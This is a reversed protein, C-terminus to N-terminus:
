YDHTWILAIFDIAKLYIIVLTIQSTNTPATQSLPASESQLHDDGQRKAKLGIHM